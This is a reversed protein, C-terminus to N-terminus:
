IFKRWLEFTLWWDLISKKTDDGAFYKEISSEIFRNDYFGVTKFDNSSLIDYIRERLKNMTKRFFENTIHTERNRTFPLWMKMLYPNLGIKFPFKRGMRALKYKKLKPAFKEIARLHVASNRRASHSLQLGATLVTPQVFPMFNRTFEDLRSQEFGSYNPLRFWIAWMEAIEDARMGSCMNLANEIDALFGCSFSKHVDENFIPPFESGILKQVIRPTLKMNPVPALRRLVRQRLIEGLGGDITIVNRGALFNLSDLFLATSIPITLMKRASHERLIDWLEDSSPIEVKHFEFPFTLEDSMQEVIEIDPESGLGFSFTRWRTSSGFLLALLGRSDLGGSLSLYRLTEPEASVAAALIDIVDDVSYNQGRPRHFYDNGHHVFDSNNFEVTAGPGLRHIGKVFTDWHLISPGLWLSGLKEFDIENKNSYRAVWDMRSSIVFGDGLKAWFIERLGLIDNRFKIEGNQWQVIIFHGDSPVENKAIANRWDTEHLIRWNDIGLGCVAFGSEDDFDAICTSPNGGLFIDFNKNHIRHLPKEDPEIRKGLNYTIFLWSL